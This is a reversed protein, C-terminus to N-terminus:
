VSDHRMRGICLASAALHPMRRCPARSSVYQPSRAIRWLPAWACVRPAASWSRLAADWALGNQWAFVKVRAVYPCLESCQRNAVPGYREM